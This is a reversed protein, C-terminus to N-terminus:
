EMACGIELRQWFRRAGVYGMARSEVFAPGDPAAAL